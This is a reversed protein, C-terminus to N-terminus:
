DNEFVSWYSVHMEVYLQNRNNRKTIDKKLKYLPKEWNGILDKEVYVKISGDLDDLIQIDYKVLLSRLKIKQEVTLILDDQMWFDIPLNIQELLSRIFKNKEEEEVKCVDETYNLLIISKM